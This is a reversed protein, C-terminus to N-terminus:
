EFTVNCLLPVLGLSPADLALQQGEDHRGGSDPQTRLEALRAFISYAPHLLRARDPKTRPACAGNSGLRLDTRCLEVRVVSGLMLLLGESAVSVPITWGTAM